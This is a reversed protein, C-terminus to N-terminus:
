TRTAAMASDSGPGPSTTTVATRSSWSSGERGDPPNAVRALRRKMPQLRVERAGTPTRVSQNRCGRPGCIPRKAELRARSLRGIPRAANLSPAHVPSTARHVNTSKSRAQPAAARPRRLWGANAYRAAAAPAPMRVLIQDPTCTCSRRRRSTAREDARLDQRLPTIASLTMRGSPIESAPSISGRKPPSYRARTRHNSGTVVFRTEFDSDNAVRSAAASQITRIRWDAPRPM